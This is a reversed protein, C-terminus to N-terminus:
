APPCSRAGLSVRSRDSIGLDDLRGRAVEIAIRYPGAPPYTPCTASSDPCPDMDATSVTTGDGRIWAISLPLRTHRMWFGGSDDQGYAFVMGEYGGLAPDTVYMLGREQLDPTDALLLCFTRSRGDADVVTVTVEGYGDLRLRGGAAVTGVPAPGGGAGPADSAATVSSSTTAGYRGEPATGTACGPLLALAALAVVVRARPM